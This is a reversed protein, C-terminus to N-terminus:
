KRFYSLINKRKKVALASVGTLVASIAAILSGPGTAPAKPAGPCFYGFDSKRYKESEDLEVEDINDMKEDPDFVQYCGKPLDEADVIVTYTGECLDEFKYEGSSNTKDKEVDNGNILKLTINPIGKEGNDEIGNKNLDFWVLDGISADCDKEDKEEEEEEIKCASDCGDENNLNGDDCQEFDQNIINDGCVPVIENKCQSSCGDGDIKNGDDCKEWSQNIKGDSCVPEVEIDCGIAKNINIGSFVFIISLLIGILFSIKLKKGILKM